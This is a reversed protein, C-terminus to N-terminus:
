IKSKRFLEKQNLWLIIAIPALFWWSVFYVLGLCIIALISLLVVKKNIEKKM